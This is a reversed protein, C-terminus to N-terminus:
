WTAIEQWAGDALIKAKNDATNILITGEVVDTTSPDGADTKVTVDPKDNLKRFVELIWSMVAFPWGIKEMNPIPPPRIDTM